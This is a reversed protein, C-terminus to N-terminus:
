QEDSTSLSNRTFTLIKKSESLPGGSTTLTPKDSM